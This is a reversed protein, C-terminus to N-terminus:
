STDFSRKLHELSFDQAMRLSHIWDTVLASQHANLCQLPRRIKIKKAINHMRIGPDSIM